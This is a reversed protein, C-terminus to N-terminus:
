QAMGLYREATLEMEIQSVQEGRVQSFTECRAVERFGLNSLIKLSPKNDEYAAACIRETPEKPLYWDLLRRAAEQMIGKGWLPPALWYGITPAFIGIDRESSAKFGIVGILTDDLTIALNFGAVGMAQKKSGTM